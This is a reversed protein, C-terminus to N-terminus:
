LAVTDGFYAFWRSNEVDVVGVTWEDFGGVDNARGIARIKEEERRMAERRKPIIDFIRMGLGDLSGIGSSLSWEQLRRIEPQFRRAASRDRLIPRLHNKM